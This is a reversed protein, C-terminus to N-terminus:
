ASWDNGTIERWVDVPGEIPRGYRERQGVYAWGGYYGNSSNRFALTAAGKETVVEYGYVQDYEQRSRSDDDDPMDKRTVTVVTGGRLENLQYADAWWSESCCDGETHWVVETGDDIRFRLSEERANVDVALVRKGVLSDALNDARTLSV